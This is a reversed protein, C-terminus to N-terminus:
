KRMKHSRKHKRSRKSKRVNHVNRHVKRSKRGRKVRSHRSKRGQKAADLKTNLDRLESEAKSAEKEKDIVEQLKRKREDLIANIKIRAIELNTFEQYPSVEQPAPSASDPIPESM